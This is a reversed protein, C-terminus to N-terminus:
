FTRAKALLYSRNSARPCHRPLLNIHRFSFTATSNQNETLPTNWMELPTICATLSPSCDPVPSPNHLPLLSTTCHTKREHYAAAQDSEPRRHHEPQKKNSSPWNEDDDAYHPSVQQEIKLAIVGGRYDQTNKGRCCYKQLNLLLIQQTSHRGVRKPTRTKAPTNNWDGIPFVCAAPVYGLGSRTVSIM